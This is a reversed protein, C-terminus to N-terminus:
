KEVPNGNIDISIPEKEEAQKNSFSLKDNKQPKTKKKWKDPSYREIDRSSIIHEAIEEHLVTKIEECISEPKPVLKEFANGLKLILEKRKVLFSKFEQKVEQIIEDLNSGNSFNSMTLGEV